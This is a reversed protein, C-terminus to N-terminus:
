GLHQIFMKFQENVFTPNHKGEDKVIYPIYGAKIIEKIKINDRNQVQEVSHKTTLKKYHWNGNWMVAIKHDHIIVDADWGNFIADNTTVFNFHNQCLEAFMIENKSRRTESQSQASKQGMKVHHLKGEPSNAYHKAACTRSCYKTAKNRKVFSIQCNPCKIIQEKFKESLSKRIKEKTEETHVRKNACSRSCFIKDPIQSERYELEVDGLCSQCKFISKTTRGLKEDYMKDTGEKTKQSLMQRQELNWSRSANACSLSCYKNTSKKVGKCKPCIIDLNPQENM